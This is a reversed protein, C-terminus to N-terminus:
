SKGGDGFSSLIKFTDPPDLLDDLYLRRHKSSLDKDEQIECYREILYTCYSRNDCVPTGKEDYYDPKISALWADLSERQLMGYPVFERIPIFDDVVEHERDSDDHVYSLKGEADYKLLTERGENLIELVSQRIDELDEDSVHEEPRYHHLKGFAGLPESRSNGAYILKTTHGVLYRTHYVVDRVSDLTWVKKGDVESSLKKLMIKKDGTFKQDGPFVLMHIHPSLVVCDRWNIYNTGLYDNIKQIMERDNLADWFARSSITNGSRADALIVRLAEQVKKIIRFAHFMKIGDTDCRKMRDNTNRQFHRIDELTLGEKAVDPHISSVGRAPRSGTESAYAEVMVSYDFVKQDVWLRYCSPCSALKCSASMKRAASGDNKLHSVFSKHCYDPQIGKGPIVFNGRNLITTKPDFEEFEFNAMKRSATGSISGTGYTACDMPILLMPSDSSTAQCSSM